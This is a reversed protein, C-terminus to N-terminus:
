SLAARQFLAILLIVCAPSRLKAGQIALIKMNQVPIYVSFLAQMIIVNKTRSMFLQHSPSHLSDDSGCFSEAFREVNRSGRIWCNISNETYSNIAVISQLLSEYM